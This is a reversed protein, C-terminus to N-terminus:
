SISGGNWILQADANLRIFRDLQKAQTSLDILRRLFIRSAQVVKIRSSPNWHPVTVREKQLSKSPAM